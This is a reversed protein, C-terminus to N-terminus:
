EGGDRVLKYQAFETRFMLGGCRQCEQTSGEVIYEEKGCQPHCVAYSVTLEDPFSVNTVEKYDMQENEWNSLSRLHAIYRNRHSAAEPLENFRKRIAELLGELEDEMPKVLFIVPTNVLGRTENYM